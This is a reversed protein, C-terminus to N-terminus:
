ANEKGTYRCLQHFCEDNFPQINVTEDLSHGRCLCFREQPPPSGYAGPGGTAKRKLVSRQVALRGGLECHSKLAARLECRSLMICCCLVTTYLVTSCCQASSYPQVCYLVHTLQSSDAPWNLDFPTLSPPTLM